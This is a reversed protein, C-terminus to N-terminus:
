VFRGCISQEDGCLYHERDLSYPNEPIGRLTYSLPSNNRIEDIADWMESALDWSEKKGRYYTPHFANTTTHYGDRMLISPAPSALITYSTNGEM